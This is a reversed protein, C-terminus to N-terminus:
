GPSFVDDTTPVQDFAGDRRPNAAGRSREEPAAPVPRRRQNLDRFRDRPSVVSAAREEGAALERHFSFSSASRGSTSGPLLSKGAGGRSQEEKAAPM